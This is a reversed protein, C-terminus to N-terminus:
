QGIRKTAILLAEEESLGSARLRAVSDRLHSELENLNESNFAPSQALAERWQQIEANLNYPTTNEMIQEINRPCDDVRTKGGAFSQARGQAVSLVEAETGNGVRAM